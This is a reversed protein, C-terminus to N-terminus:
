AALACRPPGRRAAGFAWIGGAPTRRIRDPRPGRPAPAAPRPAKAALRLMTRLRRRVSWVVATILASALHAVLMQWSPSAQAGLHHAHGSAEASATTFAEHLVWQAAVLAPVLWRRRVRRRLVLLTCVHVLGALTLLWGPTPLGGGAAAHAALVGAMIETTALLARWGLRPRPSFQSM